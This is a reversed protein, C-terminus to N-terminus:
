ANLDRKDSIQLDHRVPHYVGRNLCEVQALDDGRLGMCRERAAGALRHSVEPLARCRHPQWRAVLGPHQPGPHNNLDHKPDQRLNLKGVRDALKPPNVRDQKALIAALRQLKNM